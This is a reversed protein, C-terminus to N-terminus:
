PNLNIAQQQNNTLGTMSLSVINYGIQVSVGMIFNRLILFGDYCFSLPLACGMGEQKFRNTFQRNLFILALQFTFHNTAYNILIGLVTRLNHSKLILILFSAPGERLMLSQDFRGKGISYDFLLVSFRSIGSSM